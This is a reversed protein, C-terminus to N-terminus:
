LGSVLEEATVAAGYCIMGGGECHAPRAKHGGPKLRLFPLVTLFVILNAAM